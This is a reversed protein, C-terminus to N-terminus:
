WSAFTAKKHSEIVILYEYETPLDYLFIVNLWAIVHSHEVRSCFSDSLSIDELMDILDEKIFTLELM